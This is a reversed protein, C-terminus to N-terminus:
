LRGWWRWWCAGLLLGWALALGLLLKGQSVAPHQELFDKDLYIKHM